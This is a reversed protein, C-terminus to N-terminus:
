CTGDILPALAGGVRACISGFGFVTGRFVTPFLEPTILCVVNFNCSSCFKCVLICIYSAVLGLSTIPGYILCAIGGILFCIVISTKRGLTNAMLGSMIAGLVEAAGAM